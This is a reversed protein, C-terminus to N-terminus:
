PTKGKEAKETLADIVLATIRISGYLVGMSLFVGLLGATFVLLVQSM